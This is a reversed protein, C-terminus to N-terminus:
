NEKIENVINNMTEANKEGLEEINEGEKKMLELAEERLNKRNKRGRLKGERLKKNLKIRM